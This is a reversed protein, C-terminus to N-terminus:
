SQYIKTDLDIEEKKKPKELEEKIGKDWMAYELCGIAVSNLQDKALKIESITYPFDRVNDFVEQFLELFGEPKSTGGSVIIPIEEDIHLGDSNENFKEVINRLVYEILNSYYYSLAERIRREKKNGFSPNMLDLNNEKISTIRNPIIGLSDGVSKDIWDGSRTLSFTLVPTGKYSCAVNVLGAGFSIGIGSFNTDKCESFIVAMGENLSKSEYGLTKFIKNFVREHYLVPPMKDDISEAPISYVCYGDKDKLTGTLKEVMLTIVDIADIEQTSIVGRSMTRRVEKGFINGFKYADEGLIFVSEVDGDDDKFEVYDLKTNSIESSNIIDASIPLFMNRISLIDIKNKNKAASVLNGTGIDVGIVKM